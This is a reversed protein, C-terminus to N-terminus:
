GSAFTPQPFLDVNLQLAIDSHQQYPLDIEANKWMATPYHLKPPHREFHVQSRAPDPPQRHKARKRVFWPM